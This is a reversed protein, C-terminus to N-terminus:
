RPREGVLVDFAAIRVRNRVPLQVWVRFQGAAPFVYPFHIDGTKPDYTMSDLQMYSSGDNRVLVAQAGAGTASGTLQPRGGADRLVFHLGADEGAHRKDAAGLWVLTAGDEFRFPTGVGGGAFMADLPDTAHWRRMGGAIRVSEVLLGSVGGSSMVDAFVHYEGAPLPPLASELRLSDRAVPHLRAIAGLDGTRVLVLSKVQLRGVLSPLKPDRNALAQDIAFRLTPSKPDDVVTVASIRGAPRAARRSLARNIWFVSVILVAAVVLARLTRKKLDGLHLPSM